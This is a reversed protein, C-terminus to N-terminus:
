ESFHEDVSQDKKARRFGSVAGASVEVLSLSSSLKKAVVAKCHTREESERVAMVMSISHCSAM